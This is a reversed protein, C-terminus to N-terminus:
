VDEGHVFRIRDGGIVFGVFTVEIHFEPRGGEIEDADSGRYLLDFSCRGSGTDGDFSWSGVRFFAHRARHRLPNCKWERRRWGIANCYQSETLLACHPGVAPNVGSVGAQLFHDERKAAVRTPDRAVRFNNRTLLSTTSVRSMM